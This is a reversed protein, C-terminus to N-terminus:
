PNDSWGTLDPWKLNVEIRIQVLIPGRHTFDILSKGVGRAFLMKTWDDRGTGICHTIFQITIAFESYPPILSTCVCQTISMVHMIIQLRAVWRLQDTVYKLNWYNNLVFVSSENNNGILDDLLELWRKEVLKQNM